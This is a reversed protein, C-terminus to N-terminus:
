VRIPMGCENDRIGSYVRQYEDGNRAPITSVKGVHKLTHVAHVYDPLDLWPGLLARDNPVSRYNDLLYQAYALVNARPFAVAGGGQTFRAFKVTSPMGRLVSLIAELGDPCPLFDDELFLIWSASALSHCMRLSAAVDLTAQRIRCSPLPDLDEGTECDRGHAFLRHELRIPYLDSPCSGDADILTFNWPKGLQDRVAPATTAVYPTDRRSTLMCVHTLATLLHVRM